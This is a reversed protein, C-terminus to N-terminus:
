AAVEGTVVFSAIDAFRVVRGMAGWNGEPVENIHVWAVPAHVLRSPDDDTAALVATVREIMDCRKHDDLSGAPVAIRVVFRPPEGPVASHGGVWWADIEQWVLWSISRAAPTDPAGEARMVESVLREGVATRRAESVAGRPTFVEVFPM